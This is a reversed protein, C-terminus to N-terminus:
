NYVTQWTLVGTYFYLDVTLTCVEGGDRFLVRVASTCASKGKERVRRSSAEMADFLRDGLMSRLEEVSRENAECIEKGLSAPLDIEFEVDAPAPNPLRLRVHDTHDPFRKREESRTASLGEM